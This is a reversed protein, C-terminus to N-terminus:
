KGYKEIKDLVHLGGKIDDEIASHAYTYRSFLYLVKYCKNVVSSNECMDIVLLLISYNCM